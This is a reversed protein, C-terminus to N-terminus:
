WWSMARQVPKLNHLTSTLHFAAIVDYTVRWGALHCPEDDCYRHRHHRPHITREALAEVAEPANCNLKM